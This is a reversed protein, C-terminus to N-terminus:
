IAEHCLINTVMVIPIEKFSQSTSSHFLSLLMISYISLILIRVTNSFGRRMVHRFVALRASYNINENYVKSYYKGSELLRITLLALGICM